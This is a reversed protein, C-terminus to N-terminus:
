LNVGGLGSLCKQSTLCRLSRVGQKGEGASLLATDPACMPFAYVM